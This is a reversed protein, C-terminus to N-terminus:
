GYNKQYYDKALEIASIFLNKLMEFCLKIYDPIYNKYFYYDAPAFDYWAMGILIFIAFSIIILSFIALISISIKSYRQGYSVSIWGLGYGTIASFWVASLLLVFKSTFIFFLVLGFLTFYKMESWKGGDVKVRLFGLWYFTLSFFECGMFTAELSQFYIPLLGEPSIKQFITFYPITFALLLNLVHM